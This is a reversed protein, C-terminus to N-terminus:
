CGNGEFITAWFLAELDYDVSWLLNKNGKLLALHVQRAATLMTGSAGDCSAGNQAHGWDILIPQGDHLMINNPSVDRHFIGCDPSGNPLPPLFGRGFYGNVLAWCRAPSSCSATLPHRASLFCPITHLLATVTGGLAQWGLSPTCWM